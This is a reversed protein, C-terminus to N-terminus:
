LEPGIRIHIRFKDASQTLPMGVYIRVPGVVSAWVIGLGSGKSIPESFNNTATGIDYFTAIKWNHAIPFRYEFSATALYKGGTLYGSSDKPSIDNYGFGRISQDGGAFFRMSAPVNYISKTLIAGGSASTIFQHGAYTRLWKTQAYIKSVNDTSWWAKNAMEYFAMKKDGWVANVGGRVRTKSYSIGPIILKTSFTHAGQRGNERDYRIYTVQHWKYALLRYRNLGVIYQKTDTDNQNLLKYATKVTLYNAFPDELPIKYVLSAEQKRISSIISGQISHGYKNVWPRTWRFKGRINDDTSYGLGVTFSDKPWMKSSVYLPVELANNANKLDSFVNSSSFYGTQNIDRNFENILQSDFYDGKKFHELPRIFANAVAKSQFHIQGFKYRPGSDFSLYVIASAYEKTVEVSSKTFHADFYGYRLALQSLSKKAEEYKASNLPDNKKIIFDDLLALFHKDNKAQGTIKINIQKIIVRPGLVITIFIVHQRKNENKSKSTAAEKKLRLSISAQYYGLAKLANNTNKKVVSLYEESNAHEPATLTSLTIEVNTAAAPNIDNIKYTISAYVNKILIISLLLIITALIKM